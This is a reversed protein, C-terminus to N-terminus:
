RPGEPALEGRYLVARGACRSRLLAALVVVAERSAPALGPSPLSADHWGLRRREEPSKALVLSLEGLDELRGKLELDLSAIGAHEPMRHGQRGSAQQRIAPLAIGLQSSLSGLAKRTSSACYAGKANVWRERECLGQALQSHSREGLRLERRLWEIGEASFHRRGVQM